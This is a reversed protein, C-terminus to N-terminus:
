SDDVPYDLRTAAPGPHTEFFVARRAAVPYRTRHGHAWAAAFAAVESQPVLAWVSGGFGAGFASAAMAGLERASRALDVTEPVQNGLWTEVAHQSRDVLAGFRTLDGGALAAGAAPIIVRSELVFQAFRAKLSEVGFESDTAGALVTRIEDAASDSSAVAAELTPDEQGSARQWLELVRGASRPARNYTELAAGTKSAVVGSFAVV